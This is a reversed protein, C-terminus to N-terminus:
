LDNATQYEFMSWGDNITKNQSVYLEVLEIRHREKELETWPRPM